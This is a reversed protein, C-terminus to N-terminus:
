KVLVVPSYVGQSWTQNSGGPIVNHAVVGAPQVMVQKQNMAGTLKVHMIRVGVWRKITYVANNGNQNVNSFVPIIRTKGIISALEDKVGASIGTDGELTLIGNHDFALPKGLDLFDKKSIGHLIQRAIDKTSNNRSGIDVTGRNGPSGTGQPYLNVEPIGDGTSTVSKTSSSYHYEDTGGGAMMADWTQEDIAFPMLELNDEGDEPAKFGQINVALAATSEVTMDRGKQGFIKAFYLPVQGNWTEQKRVRVRVARYPNNPDNVLPAGSQLSSLYGLEIDGNGSQTSLQPGHSCVANSGAYQQAAAHAQQKMVNEADDRRLCDVMQWGAALAAADTTRHAETRSVAIYGVDISFALMGVLIALLFAAFIMTVGRRRKAQKSNGMLSPRRWNRYRNM